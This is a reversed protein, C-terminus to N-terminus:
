PDMYVGRKRKLLMVKHETMLLKAAKFPITGVRWLRHLYRETPLLM